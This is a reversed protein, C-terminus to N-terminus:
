QPPAGFLKGRQEYSYQQKYSNYRDIVRKYSKVEEPLDLVGLIYDTHNCVIVQLIETALEAERHEVALPFWPSNGHRRELLGGGRRATHALLAVRYPVHCVVM